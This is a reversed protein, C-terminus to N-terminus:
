LLGPTESNTSHNDVLVVEYDPYNTISFISSLLGKLIAPSDRTPVVISVKPQQSSWSVRYGQDTFCVRAEQRGVRELHDQLVRQTQEPNDPQTQQHLLVQPIHAVDVSDETLRFNLEQEQHAFDLDHAIKDAVKKALDTRIFSRSLYNKSLLLEPSFRSPKFLPIRYPSVDRKLEDVDYYVLQVESRSSNLLLFENMLFPSFEDGPFCFITYRGSALSIMENISNVKTPSSVICQDVNTVEGMMKSSFGDLDCLILQWKGTRQDQISKITKKALDINKKNVLLLFTITFAEYFSYPLLLDENIRM